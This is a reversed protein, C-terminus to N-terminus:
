LPLGAPTPVIRLVGTNYNSGVIPWLPGRPLGWVVTGPTSDMDPTADAAGDADPESLSDREESGQLEMPVTDLFMRLIGAVRDVVVTLTKGATFSRTVPKGDWHATGLVKTQARVDGDNFKVTWTHQRNWPYQLLNDYHEDCVGIHIDRDGTEAVQLSFILRGTTVSQKGRVARGGEGGGIYITGGAHAPLEPNYWSNQDFASLVVASCVEILVAEACVGADSLLTGPQLEEGGLTLTGTAGGLLALIDGVSADVGVDVSVTEGNVRQVFVAMQQAM